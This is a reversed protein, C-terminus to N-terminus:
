SIIKKIKSLVGKNDFVAIFKKNTDKTNIANVLSELESTYTDMEVQMNDIKQSVLEALAERANASTSLINLASGKLNDVCESYAAFYKEFKNLYNQFLKDIDELTILVDNNANVPLFTLVKLEYIHIQLTKLFIDHHNCFENLNSKLIEKNKEMKGPLNLFGSKLEEKNPLNNITTDIDFSISMELQNLERDINMLHQKAISIEKPDHINEPSYNFTKQMKIM